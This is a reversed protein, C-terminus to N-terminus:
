SYICIYTYMSIHNLFLYYMHFIVYIIPLQISLIYIYIYIPYKNNVDFCNSSQTLFSHGWWLSSNVKRLLNMSYQFSAPQEDLQRYGYIPLTGNWTLKYLFYYLYLWGVSVSGAGFQCLGERSALGVPKENTHHWWAPPLPWQLM